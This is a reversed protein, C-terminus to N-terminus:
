YLDCLGGDHMNYNAVHVQEYYIKIFCVSLVVRKPTLQPILKIMLQLDRHQKCVLAAYIVSVSCTNYCVQVMARVHGYIHSKM